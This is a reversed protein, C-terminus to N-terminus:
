TCGVGGDTQNMVSMTAATPVALRRLVLPQRGLPERDLLRGVGDDEMPVDAIRRRNVAVVVDCDLDGRGEDLLTDVEEVHGVPVLELDVM